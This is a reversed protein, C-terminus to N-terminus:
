EKGWHLVADQLSAVADLGKDDPYEGRQDEATYRRARTRELDIQKSECNLLISVTQGETLTMQDMLGGFLQLPAGEFSRDARLVAFYILAARGQWSEENALALIDIETGDADSLVAPIGSLELQVGVARVEVTEEIQGVRGLTGIGEWIFGNWTLRGIGTWVNVFGSEFELQAMAIPSLVEGQVAVATDAHIDRSM